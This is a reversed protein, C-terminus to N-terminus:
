FVKGAKKKERLEKFFDKILTKCEEELIGKEVEVDHNFLGEELLNVVSGCAGTKKDMAGIVLRKIRANVIAGACMPCPEVTVYLTCDELRWRDLVRSAEEIALIEGHALPNKLSERRNHGRGVIEGEFVLVSGIPVEGLEEARRAEKLAEKMYFRDM